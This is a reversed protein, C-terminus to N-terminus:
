LLKVMSSQILYNMSKLFWKCIVTNPLTLGFFQGLFSSLPKTHDFMKIMDIDLKFILTMSDLDCLSFHLKPM